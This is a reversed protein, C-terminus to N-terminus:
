MVGGFYKPRQLGAKDFSALSAQTIDRLPVSHTSSVQWDMVGRASATVVDKSWAQDQAM